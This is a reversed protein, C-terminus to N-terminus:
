VQLSQKWRVTKGLGDAIGRPGGRVKQVETVIGEPTIRSLRDDNFETFWLNGDPGAVIDRLQAPLPLPFETIAGTPTIRGISNNFPATFWLNGDPGPIIRDSGTTAEFETINGTM